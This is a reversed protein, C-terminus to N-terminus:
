AVERERAAKHLRYVLIASGSVAAPMLLLILGPIFLTLGVFSAMGCFEAFNQRVFGLREKVSYGLSELSYDASDYAIMFFLFFTSVVNVGPILFSGILLTLGLLGLVVAKMVAGMLASLTFGATNSLGQKKLTEDALVTHFPASILSTFLYTLYFQLVIFVIFILVAVVTAIMASIESELNFFYDVLKESLGPAYAFFGYIGAIFVFGALILPLLAWKRVKPNDAIFRIGEIIFRFGNWFRPIM